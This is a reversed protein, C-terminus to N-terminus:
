SSHYSWVPCLSLKSHMLCGNLLAQMDRIDAHISIHVLMCYKRMRLLRRHNYQHYKSMVAFTVFQKYYLEQIIPACKRWGDFDILLIRYALPNTIVSELPDQHKYGVFELLLSLLQFCLKDKEISELNLKETIKDSGASTNSMGLKVKLLMGIIAYGGERELAESNRWSSNACRFVLEIAQLLSEATSAREILKLALPTFGALRWMADDLYQPVAIIPEGTLVAVGNSRILADNVSPQATNIACGIGNKLTLQVLTNAPGRSLARFLQSDGLPDKERFISSPMMSLLLRQEPLVYGAKDRIVKLIDSSGDKGAAVMDNRLGLAASAEYTQFGGLCDQFNGQYQPGLRSSVALLEDSLADEFLHTSALSMKTAVLGHGLYTALERPTGIFALIPRTKNSNSAFSAFGETGTTLPPPPSPYPARLQEVFEGDVYLSAKSPTMTKPRRHVLAIHYWQGEEFAFSKFRVSPSRSKVSTQLIFNRSDRELYLLLFCTQTVDFVGFLTTHSRPDFKDVRLWASFTYGASSQPPFSRGLNPIDISAHGHLSLDFQIHPPSQYKQVMELCFEASASSSNTLLTEADALKGVGLSMLKKCIEMILDREVDDLFSDNDFALALLRSLIGSEHVLSVNYDSVAIVAALVKLVLVSILSSNTDKGRPMSIWFDMITRVVEPNQLMSKSGIVEQVAKGIQSTPDVTQGENDVSAIERPLIEYSSSVDDLQVDINHSTITSCLQDLVPDNLAFALLKGFLQGSTWFDLDSGGLGISAITQELAEWGGREVRSRFYRRNGPHGRFAAALVGLVADLLGFLSKKEDETRKQPNYFGSYARLAEFMRQFGRLHRFDDQVSSPPAVGALHQQIHSVQKILADPDPYDDISTSTVTSAVGDLLKQLVEIAKSVAQPTSASTSSRYRSPRTAM